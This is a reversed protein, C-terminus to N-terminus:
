GFFPLVLEIPRQESIVIQNTIMTGTTIEVDPGEGSSWRFRSPTDPDETLAVHIELPSGAAANYLTQVLVQNAILRQMSPLSAPFPAVWSVTGLMHGYNQQSVTSPGVQVKMGVQVQKALQSPLFLVAQLPQDDQEVLIVSTNPEVVNGPDNRLELVRGANSTKIEISEQSGFPMMTAVVEDKQVRDGVAVDVTLLVGAALAPVPDTGGERIILGQGTVTTPVRGLVGWVLAVLLLAVLGILALWDRRGTIRMMADLREPSTMRDLAAKRFIKSQQDQSM